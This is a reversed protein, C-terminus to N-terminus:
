NVTDPFQNPLEQKPTEIGITSEATVSLSATVDGHYTTLLAGHAWASSDRLSTLFAYV